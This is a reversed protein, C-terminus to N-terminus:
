QKARAAAFRRRYGSTANIPQPLVLLRRRRSSRSKVADRTSVCEQHFRTCSGSQRLLNCGFSRLDACRCLPLPLGSEVAVGGSLRTRMRRRIWQDLEKRVKPTDALLFYAKWGLMYSRLREVVQELSRGGSRRTLKRLRQKFTAKAKIFREAQASMQRMASRM